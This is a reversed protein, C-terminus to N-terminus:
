LTNDRLKNNNNALAKNLLKIKGRDWAMRGFARAFSSMTLKYENVLM